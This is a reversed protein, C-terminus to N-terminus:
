KVFPLHLFIRNVKRLSRYIRYVNKNFPIDHTGTFNIIEPNFGMKFRMYGGSHGSANESAGFDYFGLGEDKADIMAQWHMLYPGMLNRQEYNSGGFLYMRTHAFDIMLGSALPLADKSALYGTVKIESKNGLNNFFEWLKKIYVDSHNRYDQRESTQMILRVVDANVDSFKQVKVEHKQAVKINYRTKHHFTKLIEEESKLINKILTQPPQVSEAKVGEVSNLELQQLPELRLFLVKSQKKLASSFKKLSEYMTQESVESDWIPGYPCYYYNGLPTTMLIVQACGVIKKASENHTDAIFFYRQVTKGQAEQWQGWEWAQLFTNLTQSKLFDNYEAKHSIDLKVIEM